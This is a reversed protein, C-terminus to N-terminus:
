RRHQRHRRVTDPNYFQNRECYGGVGSVTAQCQELTQFGCNSSGSMGGGYRACWPYETTHAPSTPLLAALAALAMIALRVTRM